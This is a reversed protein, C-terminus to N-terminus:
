LPSRQSVLRLQAETHDLGLGQRPKSWITTYVLHTREDTVIDDHILDVLPCDLRWTVTEQTSGATVSSGSEQGIHAPVGMAVRTPDGPDEYPAATGPRDITVTTTYLM